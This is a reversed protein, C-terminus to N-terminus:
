RAAASTEEVRDEAQLHRALFEASRQFSDVRAPGRFVHGQGPYVKMEFSAGMRKLWRAAERARGLPVIVDRDGHLILVPPMHRIGQRPVQLPMAGVMSVAAAVRRDQAALSLAHFGGLSLGFVGIRGADIDPRAAIFGLADAIVREREGHRRPSARTYRGKPDLGDFYHLTFTAIGQSALRSAVGKLLVGDGLGSAGHLMLVAAHPGPGHPYAADLRVPRGNSFFENARAVPSVTAPPEAEPPPIPIPAAVFDPMTACGAAWLAVALTAGIGAQRWPLINRRM